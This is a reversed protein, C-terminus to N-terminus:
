GPYILSFRACLLKTFNNPSPGYKLFLTNITLLFFRFSIFLNDITTTLENFPLLENSNVIWECYLKLNYKWVNYLRWNIVFAFWSFDDLKPPCAWSRNDSFLKSYFVWNCVWKTFLCQNLADLETRLILFEPIVLTFSSCLSPLNEQDM